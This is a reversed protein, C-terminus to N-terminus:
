TRTRYPCTTRRGLCGRMWSSTGTSHCSSGGCPAINQEHIFRLFPDINSEYLKFTQKDGLGKRIDSRIRDSFYRKMTNYMALSKVRVKMFPFDEGNTFGWFDKRKIVKMYVLHDALRKPIVPRPVGNRGEVQAGELEVRFKAVSEKIHRDSKGLWWKEPMRVFFYPEFDDVRVCVSHGDGTSGFMCIQYPDAPKDWDVEQQVYRRAKDNEPIYWDIVQFRLPGSDPDLEPAPARPFEMSM